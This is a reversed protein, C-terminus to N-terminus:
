RCGIRVVIVVMEVGKYQIVVCMYVQVIMMKFKKIRGVVGIDSVFCDKVVGIGNVDIFRVKVGVVVGVVIQVIDGFQYRESMVKVCFYKYCQVGNQMVIFQFWCLLQNGIEVVCVDICQDDLIYFDYFQIQWWNFQVGVGLVINVIYFFCFKEGVGVEILDYQCVFQVEILDFGNVVVSVGSDFEKDM